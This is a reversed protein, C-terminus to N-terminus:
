GKLLREAMAGIEARLHLRELWEAPIGAEGWIAGALQGAVAATTDADEGLNTARLVAGRFDRAGAVAWLAAELCDVVYGSGRVEAEPMLRGPDAAIAALRASHTGTSVPQLVEFADEGALARHLLEAFIRCAELCEVAGHTTRSSHAALQQTVDLQPFAWLAVPALRMLCGNGATQPDTSGAFPEGDQEFRELAARVTIGIDFCRGTSSWLGERWWRRYREMQDRAEFGHCSVLSDALCLAMSTDDTWQGPELSFPGGGTMDAVPQFSGRPAFEVATGLADGCALGLLCGRARDILEPDRGM